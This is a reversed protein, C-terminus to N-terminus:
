KQKPHLVVLFIGSAIGFFFTLFFWRVPRRHKGKALLYGLCGPIIGGLSDGLKISVLTWVMMLLCIFCSLIDIRYQRYEINSNM